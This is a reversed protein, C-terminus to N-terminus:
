IFRNEKLFKNTQQHVSESIKELSDLGKIDIEFHNEGTHSPSINSIANSANRHYARYWPLIRSIGRFDNSGRITIRYIKEIDMRLMNETDCEIRSFLNHYQNGAIKIPPFLPVDALALIIMDSLKGTSFIKKSNEDQVYFFLAREKMYELRVTSCLSRAYKELKTGRFLTERPFQVEIIQPLVKEIFDGMRQRYLEAEDFLSHLIVPIAGFASAAFVHSTNQQKLQALFWTYHLADPGTSGMVFATRPKIIFEIINEPASGALTCFRDESGTSAAIGWQLTGPLHINKSYFENTVYYVQQGDSLTVDFINGLEEQEDKNSVVGIIFDSQEFVVNRLELDFNSIDLVIHNYTKSLVLLLPSLISPDAKVKSGHVINLMDCNDAGKEIRSNIISTSETFDAEKQSLPATIKKGAIDFMSTGTYSLDLAITNGHKSLAAALSLAITSKGSHENLSFVSIIKTKNKFLHKGSDMLEIGLSEMCRIYGRLLRYNVLFHSYLEDCNLHAIAADSVARVTGRNKVEAFPYDGFFSGSTLYICDKKGMVELQFIGELIINISNTKKLDFTQNKKVHSIRLRSAINQLEGSTCHRFFPIQKIIPIYDNM